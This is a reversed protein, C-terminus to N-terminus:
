PQAALRAQVAQIETATRAVKSIRVADVVGTVEETRNTNTDDRFFIAAAGPATFNSSTGISTGNVYARIGTSSTSVIAIYHRANASFGPGFAQSPWSQLGGCYYWGSDGSDTPGFLKKWCSVSQPTVVFEVTYPHALLAAYANWQFGQTQQGPLSFGMGGSTSVFSGGILTANRNNGSGDALTGNLEFVALTNEDAAFINTCPACAPGGCDVDLESGDRVGNTCSPGTNAGDSASDAVASDLANGDVSAGPEVGHKFSCAAVLVLAWRV